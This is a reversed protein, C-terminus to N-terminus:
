LLVHGYSVVVVVVVVVCAKMVVAWDDGVSCGCSM